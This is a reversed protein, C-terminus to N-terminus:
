ITTPGTLKVNEFSCVSMLDKSFCYLGAFLKGNHGSKLYITNQNGPAKIKVNHKHGQAKPLL